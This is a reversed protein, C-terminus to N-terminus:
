IDIYIFLLQLSMKRPFRVEQCLTKPCISMVRTTMPRKRKKQCEECLSKFIEVSRTTINAYKKHLEKLMRDRGGHGTSIHAKHIIDYTEEITVYYIPSKSTLTRKKILKETEM